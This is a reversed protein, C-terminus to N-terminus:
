PPIVTKWDIPEVDAPAAETSDTKVTVGGMAPYYGCDPCWSTQGWPETSGCAPCTAVDTKAETELSSEAELTDQPADDTLDELAPLTDTSM